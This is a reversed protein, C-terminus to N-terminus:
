NRIQNIIELFSFLNLTSCGVKRARAQANYALNTGYVQNMGMLSEGKNVDDSLFNLFFFYLFPTCASWGHEHGPRDAIAVLCLLENSRSCIEPSRSDKSMNATCNSEERAINEPLGNEWVGKGDREDKLKLGM